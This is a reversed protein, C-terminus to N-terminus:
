WSEVRIDGRRAAGNFDTNLDTLIRARACGALVSCLALRAARVFLKLFICLVFHSIPASRNGESPERSLHGRHLNLASAGAGALRM